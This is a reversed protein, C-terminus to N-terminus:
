FFARLGLTLFLPDLRLEAPQSNVTIDADFLFIHKAEIGIAINEAVFYEMGLGAAAVYSTDFGGNVGDQGVPQRRDNFETFGFGGGAVAYPVLRGNLLPYRFRAQLINTWVAYEVVVGKGPASLTTELLSAELRGPLGEATFEVGWYRNFDIGFGAGGFGVPTDLRASSVADPDTFVAYGARLSLYYRWGDDDTSPSSAPRIDPTEQLPDFHIRLGITAAVSSMDVPSAVGAIEIEPEALFFHKIEAGLAITDTVFYELGVGLTGVFTADRPGNVEIAARGGVGGSNLFNRDNMEAFGMGAGLVLYPVLRGRRLPYRLRAQALVSWMGYEGIKEGTGPQLLQTETFEAALELSLYKNFDVGAAFGQLGEAAPSDLEVGSQEKPNTFIAPGIRILAYPRLRNKPKRVPRPKYSAARTQNGQRVRPKARPINLRDLRAASERLIADFDYLKRGADAPPGSALFAAACILYILGRNM